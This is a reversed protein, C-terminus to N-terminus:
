HSHDHHDHGHSECFEDHRPWESSPDHNEEGLKMMPARTDLIKQILTNRMKAIVEREALEEEVDFYKKGDIWTQECRSFNSLPPGSWIVLDAHKGAELSGVHKDIRLQIAPNLTVFKLAEQPPVNGYKVAKAAEQNMRRGLEGDDSNFSVVIGQEHMMAGNYPIADQVEVKYAWWDSFSSGTAGHKAMADAVKYGELIHQFSGITIKYEDLTRILTLIEDQRYSHCHVWREGSLIESIAELELDTRPPLGQHTDAYEKKRIAYEKAEQLEDRMIQQVGMRTQPYRSTYKDGWNSQKVNEGLAFKVGAPAEPFRLGEYNSGWRMKIVQNQGGIPNASGHLINATTLGGALQWYIDIDDCDLFDAIRVEATVAQASENIGGDSAIHSHCDILGPSIHKGTADIIVADEPIKLNKGVEVIVGDKVLVTGNKINGAPGSTWITAGQFVVLKATQPEEKRGFAGLPYNVPFSAQSSRAALANKKDLKEEKEKETLEENELIEKEVESKEEPPAEAPQNLTMLVSSHKGDPWSLTGLWEQSEKELVISFTVMGRSDFSDGLFQGVLRGDEQSLKKVEVADEFKPLTQDPRVKAKLTEEGKINMMLAVADDKPGNTLALKWDGQLDIKDDEDHQVRHGQVWTEVIKTEDDFLDGDTLVFSALKGPELTGLQDSVQFRKAPIITLSNLAATAPFGRKVAIRLNKLFDKQSELRHTTLLIELGSKHLQALNGPAHDWHMLSELTASSAAEPSAVNPAKPFAVPVIFTRGTDKIEQLRRYENGSGVIILNLKFERAFDNARLAFLENSTELMVPLEGSAFLQMAQLTSNTEPLPLSPDQEVAKHADRYWLADYFSQRALAVAGMPSNPYNSRDGSRRPITLEGNLAVRDKLLLQHPEGEGLSYLASQGRLVGAEPAVLRAVFGQQRLNSAGLHSKKIASSVHFDARIQPNWYATAPRKSAADLAVEAFSDIFGPYAVKGTGDIVEADAPIEVDAGALTIKQDRVVLTGKEIVQGSEQVIRLGTIAYVHPPSERLGEVHNTSGVQGWVLAPLLCILGVSLSRLTFSM